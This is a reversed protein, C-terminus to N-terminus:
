KFLALAKPGRSKANAYAPSQPAAMSPDQYDWPSVETNVLVSARVGRRGRSADSEKAVRPDISGGIVRSYRRLPLDTYRESFDDDEDDDLQLPRAEGALFADIPVAKSQATRRASRAVAVSQHSTQKDSSNGQDSLYNPTVPSLERPTNVPSTSHEPIIDGVLTNCNRQTTRTQSRSSSATDDAVNQRQLTSYGQRGHSLESPVVEPLDTASPIRQLEPHLYVEKGTRFGQSDESGTSRTSARRFHIVGDADPWSDGQSGADSGARVTHRRDHQADPSSGDTSHSRASHPPVFSNRHSRRRRQKEERERVKIAEPVGDWKSNVRPVHEPMKRSSVHPVNQPTAAGHKAKLDAEVQALATLTPEKAFLGGFFSGKKKPLPAITSAATSRTATSNTSDTRSISSAKPPNERVQANLKEVEDPSLAKRYGLKPVRTSQWDATRPSTPISM